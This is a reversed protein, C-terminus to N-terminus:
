SSAMMRCNRSLSAWSPKSLHRITDIVAEHSGGLMTTRSVRKNEGRGAETLSEEVNEIILSLAKDEEAPLPPLPSAQRNALGHEALFNLNTGEVAYPLLVIQSDRDRAIQLEKRSWTSREYDKGIIAVFVDCAEVEGRIKEQWYSGSKLANRDKYHFQKINRLRLERSLKGALPNENAQNSIFIKAPRRGITGFYYEGEAGNKFVTQGEDMKLFVRELSWVLDEADRWYLVSEVGPEDPDMRLGEAIPPLTFAGLVEGPELRALKITPVLRGHAYPFVWDPLDRGRVDLIVAEYEDLELALDANHECPIKVEGIEFGHRDAAERIRRLVNPKAYACSSGRPVAVAIRGRPRNLADPYASAIKKLRDIKDRLEDAHADLNDETFCFTEHSDLKEFRRATLDKDILLLKPRRAQLSLGYEYFVFPSCHLKPVDKRRNFVAVFASCRRMMQELHTHITVDSPPDVFFSFDSSFHSWIAKNLKQDGVRYSHSFYTAVPM